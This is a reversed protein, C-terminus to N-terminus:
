KKALEVGVARRSVIGQANWSYIFSIPRMVYTYTRDINLYEYSVDM